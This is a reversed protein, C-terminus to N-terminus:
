GVEESWTITQRFTSELWQSYCWHALLQSLQAKRAYFQLAHIDWPLTRQFEIMIGCSPRLELVDNAKNFWIHIYKCIFIYIYTYMYIYLYM